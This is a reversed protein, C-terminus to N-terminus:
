VPYLVLSALVLKGDLRGGEPTGKREVLLRIGYGGGGLRVSVFPSCHMTKPSPSAAASNM